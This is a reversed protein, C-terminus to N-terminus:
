AESPLPWESLAPRSPNCIVAIASSKVPLVCARIVAPGRFGGNM